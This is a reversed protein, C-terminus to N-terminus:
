RQRAVEISAIAQAAIGEKRGTFGMKETTTAKINVRNAAIALISAVKERMADRYPGIRPAEGILTIDVNVIRGGAQTILQCAYAVFQRSDADKWQPDSPPFHQGIDGAGVTGLLADVLAHLAVDGDSHAELTMTYPIAIGCLMVHPNANTPEKFRHADFGTGVRTEYQMIIDGQTTIKRNQIDGEIAQVVIGAQECLAADDTYSEGQYHKHLSLITSYHFGQPTQATRLQERNLTASIITGESNMQKVTEYIPLVPIIAPATDLATVVRHILAPAVFPRAADHILVKAPTLTKIAELGLRVSDQRTKGGSVPPLLSLGIMAHHYLAEDEPHIVVQVHDIAPSHLFALVTHRLIATGHLLSYQKPQSAGFRTGKGGAVILAITPTNTDQM